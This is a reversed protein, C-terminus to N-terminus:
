DRCAARRAGAAGGSVDELGGAEVYPVPPRILGLGARDDALYLRVPARLVAGHSVTENLRDVAGPIGREHEQGRKGQHLAGLAGGGAGAGGRAPM